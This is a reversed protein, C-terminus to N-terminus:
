PLAAWLADAVCAATDRWTPLHQGHTWAADSLRTRYSVDSLIRRLATALAAPDDPPVLVGADPPVTEPVAGAACAVIPLGHALAEAFVMGYGEHRSPLVFVNASGYAASLATDQLEGALTVRDQLEHVAILEKIHTVVAPDRALSGVLTSHWPLDKIEALAKILVDHGKRYTLTAVTLLQPTGSINRARQARDTGPVAVHLLDRAVGYDRVLTDGTHPSTVVVARAFELATRETQRFRAADAASLGSEDALPHHVLAVMNLHPTAELVDRPMASFALGDALVVADEPLQAFIDRTEKLDAASPNPYGAPLRVPHAMWGASPLAETLRRAYVYGGTLTAPDGPVAFWVDPM